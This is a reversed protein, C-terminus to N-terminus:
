CGQAPCKQNWWWRRKELHERLHSKQRALRHQGGQAEAVTEAGALLMKWAGVKASAM